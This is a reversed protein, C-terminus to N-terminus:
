GRQWMRGCRRDQFHPGQRVDSASATGTYASMSAMRWGMSTWYERTVSMETCLYSIKNFVIWSFLLFFSTLRLRRRLYRRPGIFTAELAWSPIKMFIPCNETLDAAVAYASGLSSQEAMCLGYLIFFPVIEYDWKRAIETENYDVLSESPARVWSGLM